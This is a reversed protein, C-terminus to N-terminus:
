DLFKRYIFFIYLYYSSFNIIIGITKDKEEKLKFKTKEDLREYEKNKIKERLQRTTLCM